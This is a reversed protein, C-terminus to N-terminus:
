ITNRQEQQYLFMSLANKCDQKCTYKCYEKVLYPTSYIYYLDDVNLYVWYSWYWKRIYWYSTDPSQWVHWKFPNYFKM